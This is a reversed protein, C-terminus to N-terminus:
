NGSQYYLHLRPILLVLPQAEPKHRHQINDAQYNLLEGITPIAEGQDRQCFILLPSPCAYQVQRQTEQYWARAIPQVKVPRKIKLRVDEPLCAVDNMEQELKLAWQEKSWPPVARCAKRSKELIALVENRTLNKIIHKNAWGFRLTDPRSLWSISRYANLTILGPLARHVWEFRQAPALGSEISIIRELIQKAENIRTIQATLSQFQKNTVNYCLAGPLRVASKSSINESQQQIFLHTFHAMAAQHAAEGVHQGVSISSIEEQEQGKLTAPLPFVRGVLLPTATLMERLRLLDHELQRFTSTLREILDYSAM